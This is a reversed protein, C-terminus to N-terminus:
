QFPTFTITDGRLTADMAMNGMTVVLSEGEESLTIVVKTTVEITRLDALGAKLSKM